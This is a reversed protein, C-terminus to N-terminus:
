SNFLYLPTSKIMKNLPPRDRLIFLSEKIELIYNNKEKAIISFDDLNIEHQYQLIHDGVASHTYKTLRKGTLHSVNLHECFRVKCHRISKGIPLTAAVM